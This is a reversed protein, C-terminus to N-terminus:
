VITVYYACIDMGPIDDYQSDFSALIEIFDIHVLPNGLEEESFKYIVKGNIHIEECNGIKRLLDQLRIVQSM